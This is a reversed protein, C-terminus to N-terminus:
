FGAFGLPVINEDKNKGGQSQKVIDEAIQQFFKILIYLNAGPAPISGAIDAKVPRRQAVWSGRFSNFFGGSKAPKVKLAFLVWWAKFRNNNNDNNRVSSKM